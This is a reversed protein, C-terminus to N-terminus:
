QGGLREFYILLDEWTKYPDEGFHIVTGMFDPTGHKQKSDILYDGYSLNKRDSIILRNYAPVGLWKEVWKVREAWASPTNYPASSLIYTDYVAALTHFGKVATSVPETWEDFGNKCNALTDELAIYLIPRERKEQRDDIWQIVPLVSRILTHDNLYHEGDFRIARTYHESFLPFTHVLTDHIGFLGYVLDQEDDTVGLFCQDTIEKYEQLLSKTILFDKAGDARPSSYERRGLSNNSTLTESMQFAPNVLIRHYGYLMEAYMAGMSTGIILDPNETACLQRLLAMAEAPHLPLDPAIVTTEPLLMRISKVTGSSGSSGFGHVYLIKKGKMLHRNGNVTTEM